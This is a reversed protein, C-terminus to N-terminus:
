LRASQELEQGRTEPLYRLIVLLALLPFLATAGVARGFGVEAALLGVGLPSLVAGLRGLLSNAWAFADGRLETPFLEATFANLVPLVATSGAIGIALAVTLGARSTLTYSAAVGVSTMLFLLVAGARRGLVDLLRGSLFVVPVSAVAAISISLGVQADSFAREGRAFEKWFVMASQTCLYTLGWCAALPWVRRRYPTRLLRLLPAAAPVAGALAGFRSTERLARRAVAIIVLPAAGVFYVARWGLPTRLLLPVVAACVIAGLTSAGQIVGIVMGRREAPFEEAAFVQAVAYESMLFARAVLQCLAFSIPGPCLGSALSALTYGAITVSLVRRRGWTDAKRVLLYSLVMGCNIVALLVGGQRPSLDMAARLNPLIQALALFDFGEFFTAVSLFGLLRRQYASLAPTDTAM